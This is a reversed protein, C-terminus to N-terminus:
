LRKSRRTTHKPIRRNTKRRTSIRRWILVVMTVALWWFFMALAETNM